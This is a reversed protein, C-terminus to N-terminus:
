PYPNVAPKPHNLMATIVADSVGQQRLYIIQDADLSYGLGGNNVYALITDDSVKAQSLRIIQPVGYAMQSGSANVAAPQAMVISASLALGAVVTVMRQLNTTKM